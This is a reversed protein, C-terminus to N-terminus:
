PEAVPRLRGARAAGVAPEPRKWSALSRRFPFRVNSAGWNWSVSTSAWSMTLPVRLVVAVQEGIQGHAIVDPGVAEDHEADQGVSRRSGPRPGDSRGV